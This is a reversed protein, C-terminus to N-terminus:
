RRLTSRRRVPEGSRLEGLADTLIDADLKTPLLQFLDAQTLALLRQPLCALWCAETSQQRHQGHCVTGRSQRVPKRPRETGSKIYHKRGFALRSPEELAPPPYFVACPQSHAACGAPSPDCRPSMDSSAAISCGSSSTRTRGIWSPARCHYVCVGAPKRRACTECPLACFPCPPLPRRACCHTITIAHLGVPKAGVPLGCAKPPKKKLSKNRSFLGM